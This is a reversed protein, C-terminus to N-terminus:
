NKEKLTKINLDKTYYIKHMKRMKRKDVPIISLLISTSLCLTLMGDAERWGIWLSGDGMSRLGYMSFTLSLLLAGNRQKERWGLAKTAGEATPWISWVWKEQQVQRNMALIILTILDKSCNCKPSKMLGHKYLSNTVCPQTLTSM